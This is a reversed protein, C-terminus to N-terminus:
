LVHLAVYYKYQQLDLTIKKSELLVIYSKSNFCFGHAFIPIYSMQFPNGFISFLYALVMLMFIYFFIYQRMIGFLVKAQSLYMNRLYVVTPVFSVLTCSMYFVGLESVYLFVLVRMECYVFVKALASVSSLSILPVCPTLQHWEKDPPELYVITMLEEQSLPHGGCTRASPLTKVGDGYLVM